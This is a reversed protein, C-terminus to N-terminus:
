LHNRISGIRRGRVWDRPNFFSGQKEVVLMTVIPTLLALIVLASGRNKRRKMATKGSPNLISILNIIWIIGLPMKTLIALSTHLLSRNNDIYSNKILIFFLIIAVIAALIVGWQPNGGLSTFLIYILVFSAPILFTLGLDNYDKFIIITRNEGYGKFMTVIMMVFYAILFIQYTQYGTQGSNEVAPMSDSYGFTMIAISFLFIYVTIKKM